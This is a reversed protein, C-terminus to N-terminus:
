KGKSTKSHTFGVPIKKVLKGTNRYIASACNKGSKTWKTPNPM